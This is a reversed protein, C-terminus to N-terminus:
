SSRDFGPRVLIGLKMLVPYAYRQFLILFLMLWLVPPWTDELWIMVPIFIIFTAYNTVSKWGPRWHTTVLSTIPYKVPVLCLLILIATYLTAWLPDLGLFYFLFVSFFIPTSGLSYGQRLVNEKMSYKLSCTMAALLCLPAGAYPVFVGNEWFFVMPVFTLSIVDTIMDIAEGSILPIREKVRFRRALTGDTFDILIPFFILRAALDTHGRLLAFLGGMSFALGSLTWLHVLFYRSFLFGV